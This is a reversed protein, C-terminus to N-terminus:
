TSRVASSIARSNSIDALSDSIWVHASVSRPSRFPGWRGRGLAGLAAHGNRLRRGPAHRRRSRVSAPALVLASGRFLTAALRLCPAAPM